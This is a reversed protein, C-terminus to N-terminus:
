GISEAGNINFVMKGWQLAINSIESILYCQIESSEETGNETQGQM